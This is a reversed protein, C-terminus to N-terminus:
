QGMRKARSARKVEVFEAESMPVLKKTVLWNLQLLGARTSALRQVTAKWDNYVLAEGNWEPSTLYNPTCPEAKELQDKTIVVQM